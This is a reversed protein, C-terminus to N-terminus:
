KKSKIKRRILYVVPLWVVSFVLVWIAVKLLWSAFSVLAYTAQKLTYSVDFANRPALGHAFKSDSVHITVRAFKAEQELAKKRGELRDIQRQLYLLKDQLRMLTEVKDAKDLWAKVTEYSKKYTELEKDINEYEETIDLGDKSLVQIEKAKGKVYDIFTDLKDAPVRVVLNGSVHVDKDTQKTLYSSVVFGGLSEVYSSADKVFTTSDNVILDIYASFTKIRVGSAPSIPRPEFSGVTKSNTPAVMDVYPEEDMYELNKRMGHGPLYGIGEAFYAVIVLLLLFIVGSMLVTLVKAQGSLKKYTSLLKM